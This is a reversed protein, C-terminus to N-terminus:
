EGGLTSRGGRETWKGGKGGGKEGEGEGRGKGWEGQRARMPHKSAEEMAGRMNNEWSCDSYRGEKVRDERGGTAGWRESVKSAEEVAGRMNNEW